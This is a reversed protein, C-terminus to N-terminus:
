SALSSVGGPALCSAGTPILEIKESKAWSGGTSKALQISLIRQTLVDLAQEIEDANVHDLITALTAVERVDRTQSKPAPM